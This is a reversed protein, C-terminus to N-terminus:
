SNLNMKDITVEIKEIRAKRDRWFIEVNREGVFTNM